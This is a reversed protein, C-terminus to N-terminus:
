PEPRCTTAAGPAASRAMVPKDSLLDSGRMSSSHHAASM